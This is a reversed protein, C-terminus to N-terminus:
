TPGSTAPAGSSGPRPTAATTRSATSSRTSRRRSWRSPGPRGVLRLRLPPLDGAKSLEFRDGIATLSYEGPEERDVEADHSRFHVSPRLKLRLPGEGEVLRYTLHTTNQRHPMLLRKEVTHGTPFEYRWVPLGHELRFEVLHAAGHLDLADGRRREEGGLGVLKGDPLRLRDSLHGLMLTRGFTGALAAILLGHYRRTHAGSLTGSAYGGLGNTVLWERDLLRRPDDESRKWQLTRTLDPM